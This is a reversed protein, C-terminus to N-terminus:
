RDRQRDIKRKGRGEGLMKFYPNAKLTPSQSYYSLQNPKKGQIQIEFM